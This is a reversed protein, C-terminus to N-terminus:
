SEKPTERPIFGSRKLEDEARKIGKKDGAAEFAQRAFVLRKAKLANEALATLERTDPERGTLVCARHFLFYDGEDLARRSVEEIGEDFGAQGYFDLSDNLRGQEVYVKGYEILDAVSAPQHSDDGYLVIGKKLPNLLAM